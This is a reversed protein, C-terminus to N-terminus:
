STLAIWADEQTCGDVRCFGNAQLLATLVTRPLHRLDKKSPLDPLRVLLHWQETSLLPFAVLGVVDNNAGM